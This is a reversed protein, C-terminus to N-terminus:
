KRCAAFHSVSVNLPVPLLVSINILSSPLPFSVLVWVRRSGVCNEIWSKETKRVGGGYSDSVAQSVLFQSLQGLCTCSFLTLQSLKLTCKNVIKISRQTQWSFLPFILWAQLFLKSELWRVLCILVRVQFTPHKGKLNVGKLWKVSDREKGRLLFVLIYMGM